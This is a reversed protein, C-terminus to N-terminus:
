CHGSPLNLEADPIIYNGWADTINEWYVLYERAVFSRSPYVDVADMPSVDGCFTNLYDLLM